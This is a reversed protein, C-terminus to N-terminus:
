YKICYSISINRPRSESGVSSTRGLNEFITYVTGFGITERAFSWYAQGGADFTNILRYSQSLSSDVSSHDHQGLDESQSSAFLRDADVGKGEDIGRLFEGRLDPLNFTSSGDGEGWYTGITDFLTSYTIRSVASGDCFFWGAPVNDLSDITPPCAFGVIMGTFAQWINNSNNDRISLTDSKFIATM